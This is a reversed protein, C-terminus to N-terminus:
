ADGTPGRPTERLLDVNGQYSFPINKLLPLGLDIEGSLRYDVGSYPRMLLNVLSRGLRMLSTKVTLEFETAGQAPIRLPESTEGKAFREGVLEIRWRMAQVPLAIRNPNFLRLRVRYRQEFLSAEVIRLGILTIEPTKVYRRALKFGLELARQQARERAQQLRARLRTRWDDAVPEPPPYDPQIVLPEGRRHLPPERWQEDM